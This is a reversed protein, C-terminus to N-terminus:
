IEIEIKDYNLVPIKSNRNGKELELFGEKKLTDVKRQVNAVDKELYKALETISKPKEYKIFNLLELDIMSIKTKYTFIIKDQEIEEDPHELFYKWNELDMQLKMDGKGKKFINELKKISGYVEEYEKTLNKGKIKRTLKIEIM